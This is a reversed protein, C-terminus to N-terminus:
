DDTVELEKFFEDKLEGMMENTNYPFRIRVYFRGDKRSYGKEYTRIGEARVANKRIRRNMWDNFEEPSAFSIIQEIWAYEIRKM